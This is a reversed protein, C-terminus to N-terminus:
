FNVTQIKFRIFPLIIKFVTFRISLEHYFLLIPKVRFVNFVPNFQELLSNPVYWLYKAM